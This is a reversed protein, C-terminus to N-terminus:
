QGIQNPHPTTPTTASNGRGTNAGSPQQTSPKVASEELGESAAAIRARKIQGIGKIAVVVILAVLALMVVNEAISQGSRKYVRKEV